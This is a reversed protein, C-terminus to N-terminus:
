YQHTSLLIWESHTVSISSVFVVKPPHEFPSALALDMLKRVGVLNPRFSTLALNFDVKWATCHDRMTLGAILLRHLSKGNHIISTVSMRVEEYVESALGLNPLTTDGELFTVREDDAIASDVGRDQLMNIQRAKISGSGARNLAFVRKVSPVELLKALIYSGLGGTSGTLLITEAAPIPLSPQHAPFDQTLSSM